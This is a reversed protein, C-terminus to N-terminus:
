AKAAMWLRTLVPAPLVDDLRRQLGPRPATTMWWEACYRFICMSCAHIPDKARTLSWALDASLGKMSMGMSKSVQGRLRHVQSPSFAHVDGGSLTTPVMSTIALRTKHGKNLKM